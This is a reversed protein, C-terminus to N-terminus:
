EDEEGGAFEAEHERFFDRYARVNELATWPRVSADDSDLDYIRARPLSLLFPSHTAIVLQCRYFRASDALFQRLELQRPASLSNEPEDLLYLANERVTDTFFALASEGNSRERVNDPLRAAVYRSQTLRRADVHQKLAQYDALSQLRFGGDQKTSIYEDFLGDRRRDIGENLSRIDLLYDFVDDSTVIRSEQPLALCGRSLEADCLDVFRDFFPSRNYAAGRTLRLKEAMVNLITSKGSGNGGYFITIPAFTFSPMERPGFVCFPYFSGYCTRSEDNIVREQVGVPPLSFRELFM